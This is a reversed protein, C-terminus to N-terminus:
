IVPLTFGEEAETSLSLLSCTEEAGAGALSRTGESDSHINSLENTHEKWLPLTPTWIYSLNHCILVVARWSSSHDGSLLSLYLQVGYKVQLARVCGDDEQFSFVAKNCILKYIDTINVIQSQLSLTM